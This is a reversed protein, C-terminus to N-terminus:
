PTGAAHMRLAALGCGGCRHGGAGPGGDGQLAGEAAPARSPVAAEMRVRVGDVAAVAAEGGDGRAAGDRAACALEACAGGVARGVGQVARFVEVTQMMKLGPPMDGRAGASRPVSALATAAAARAAAGMEEAVGGPGEGGAGVEAPALLAQVAANPGSPSRAVLAGGGPSAASSDGQLWLEATAVDVELLREVLGLLAGPGDQLADRRPQAVLAAALAQANERLDGELWVTGSQLKAISQAAIDGVARRAAALADGADTGSQAIDHMLEMCPACVAAGADASLLLVHRALLLTLPPGLAGACARLAAAAMTASAARNTASRRGRLAALAPELREHLTATTDLLWTADRTCTFPQQPTAVPADTAAAPAVDAVGPGGAALSLARLAASPTQASPEAAGHGEAPCAATVARLAHSPLTSPDLAITLVSRLVCCAATHSSPPLTSPSASLLACSKSVLGPLYFAVRDPQPRLARLVADAARLAATALKPAGAVPSTRICPRRQLRRHRRTHQSQM